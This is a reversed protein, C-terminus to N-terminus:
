GNASEAIHTHPYFAHWAFWMVDYAPHNPLQTGVLRGQRCRGMATWVSSTRDDMFGKGDPRFTLTDSGARRGFVRVAALPEGWLAILPIGGLVTNVARSRQIAAKSIALVAGNAKVGIVVHKPAFRQDSAMVPFFPGGSDYYTGSRDYSGYPDTGYARFFGTETSLVVTQPHAARWREWTTWGLPIEELVVGKNPGTIAVGLIQPWQSDSQRDYMLLNSNVLKGTTGFTLTAGDVRSRGRFGVTSGTLPCYTVALKEGAIEDNVIEHWVLIKQPYARAAGGSELGFVVDGPRLFADADTAAVYKPRDIPPIGDKPPGGRQIHAAFDELAWGKSPAQALVPRTWPIGALTAAAGLFARRSVKGRDRPADGHHGESDM